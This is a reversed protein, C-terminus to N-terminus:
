AIALGPGYLKTRIKDGRADTRIDSPWPQPMPGEALDAVNLYAMGVGSDLAYPSQGQSILQAEAIADIRDAWRQNDEKRIEYFNALSELKGESVGKLTGVLVLFEDSRKGGVIQEITPEPTLGAGVEIIEDTKARSM